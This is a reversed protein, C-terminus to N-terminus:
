PMSYKIQSRLVNVFAGKYAVYLLKSLFVADINEYYFTLCSINFIYLKIYIDIDSMRILIAIPKLTCVTNNWQYALSLPYFPFTPSHCVPLTQVPTTLAPSLSYMLPCQASICFDM